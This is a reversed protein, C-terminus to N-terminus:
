CDVVRTHFKIAVPNIVSYAFHLMPLNALSAKCCSLTDDNNKEPASTIAM